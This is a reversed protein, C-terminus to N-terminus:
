NINISLPISIVFIVASLFHGLYFKFNHPVELVDFRREIFAFCLCINQFHVYIILKYKRTSVEV